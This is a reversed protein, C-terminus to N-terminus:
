QKKDEKGKDIEEKSVRLINVIFSPLKIGCAHLNEIISISENLIIYIGIIDGFPIKQVFSLPINKGEQLIFSYHVVADLFLGFGLCAFLAIKKWLGIYGARSNIERNIKGKILGTFIDILIAITVLLILFGYENTFYMTFGIIVSSSWKIFENWDM